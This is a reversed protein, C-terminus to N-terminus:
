GVSMYTVISEELKKVSVDSGEEVGVLEQQTGSFAMKGERLIVIQDSLDAVDDILHTSVLTMRKSADTRIVERLQQRQVPDLGATPEDLILLQPDHLIAHAFGLRRRMGGSLERIKSHARDELGVYSLATQVSTERQERNVRYLWAVHHLFESCTASRPFSMEQPLYGIRLMAFINIAQGTNPKDFGAIVRFLTSKGAGNAGVISTVGPRMMFQVPGLRFGGKHDKTVDVQIGEM